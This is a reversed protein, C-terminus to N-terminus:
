YRYFKKSPLFKSSILISNISIMLFSSYFGVGFQGILDSNNQHKTYEKLFKQTGSSAIVGLNNILEDRTMGLGSDFVTLTNNTEDPIFKIFDEVYGTSLEPHQCQLIRYKTM